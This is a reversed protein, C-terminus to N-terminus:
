TRAASPAAKVRGPRLPVVRLRVGTANDLEVDRAMGNVQLTLRAM